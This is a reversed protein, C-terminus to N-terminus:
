IHSLELKDLTNFVMKQGLNDFPFFYHWTPIPFSLPCNSLFSQLHDLLLSQYNYVDAFNKSIKILIKHAKAKARAGQQTFTDKKRGWIKQLVQYLKEWTQYPIPSYGLFFLSWNCLFHDWIKNFYKPFFHYM